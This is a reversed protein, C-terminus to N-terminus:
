HPQLVEMASWVKIMASYREHSQTAHAKVVEKFHSGYDIEDVQAALYAKMDDRTVLARFEYDAGKDYAIYISLDPNGTITRLQDQMAELDAHVRARVLLWGKPDASSNAVQKHETNQSGMAPDYAVTSTFARKDFLWM